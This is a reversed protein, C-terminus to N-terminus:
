KLMRRPLERLSSIVLLFKTLQQSQFLYIQVKAKEEQATETSTDSSASVENSSSQAATENNTDAAYVQKSNLEVASLFIVAGIVFSAAGGKKMKRLSYRLKKNTEGM